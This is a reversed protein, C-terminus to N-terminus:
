TTTPAAPKLPTRTRRGAAIASALTSTKTEVGHLRNTEDLSKDLLLVYQLRKKLDKKKLTNIHSKIDRYAKYLYIDRYTM